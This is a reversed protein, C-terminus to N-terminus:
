LNTLAEERHIFGLTELTSKIRHNRGILSKVILGYTKINNSLYVIEDACSLMLRYESQGFLGDEKWTKDQGRFPVYVINKIDFNPNDQKLKYVSWFALQDFGQAGGSIFSLPKVSKECILKLINELSNVFDVYKSKNYGNEELLKKPRPGTFCITFRNADKTLINNTIKIKANM